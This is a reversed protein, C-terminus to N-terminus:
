LRGEPGVAAWVTKGSPTPINGWRRSVAAVIALGSVDTGGGRCEETRVALASSRDEVAIVVCDGDTEVSVVPASATHALVNEVMVTVVLKAVSVLEPRSWETLWEAILDRSRGVSVPAAPLEARARQRLRAGGASISEAAAAISSYIPVSRAVGSRIIAKRRAPDSCALAMRVGPCQRVHWRASAFVVWASPAPVVLAGVDVVVSRPEDLAAQIVTDRLPRYNSSDLVGAVTLVRVDATDSASILLGAQTSM